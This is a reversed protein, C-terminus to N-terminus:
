LHPRKFEWKQAKSIAEHYFDFASSLPLRLCRPYIYLYFFLMMNLGLFHGYLVSINLLLFYLLIQVSLFLLLLFHIEAPSCSKTAPSLSRGHFSIQSLMLMDKMRQDM